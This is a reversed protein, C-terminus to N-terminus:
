LSIGNKAQNNSFSDGCKVLGFNFSFFFSFFLIIAKERRLQESDHMENQIVNKNFM